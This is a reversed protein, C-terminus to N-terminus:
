RTLSMIEFRYNSDIQQVHLKRNKTKRNQSSSQNERNWKFPQKRSHLYSRQNSTEKLTNLWTFFSFASPKNCKLKAQSSQELTHTQPRTKNWCKSKCFPNTRRRAPTPVTSRKTTSNRETLTPPPKKCYGQFKTLISLAKPHYQLSSKLHWQSNLTTPGCLILMSGTKICLKKTKSSKLKSAKCSSVQKSKIDLILTGQQWHKLKNSLSTRSCTFYLCCIQLYEICKKSTLCHLRQQQELITSCTCCVIFQLSVKSKRFTTFVNLPPPKKLSKSHFYRQHREMQPLWFCVYFSTCCTRYQLCPNLLFQTSISLETKVKIEKRVSTCVKIRKNTCYTLNSNNISTLSSQSLHILFFNNSVTTYSVHAHNNKGQKCHIFHTNNSANKCHLSVPNSTWSLKLTYTIQIITCVSFSQFVKSTTSCSHRLKANPKEEKGQTIHCHRQSRGKNSFKKRQTSNKCSIAKRLQERQNSNNKTSNIRQPCICTNNM